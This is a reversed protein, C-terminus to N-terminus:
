FSKLNVSTGDSPPKSREGVLMPASESYTWGPGFSQARGGRFEIREFVSEVGIRSRLVVVIRPGDSCDRRFVFMNGPSRQFWILDSSGFEMPVDDVIATVADPDSAGTPVIRVTQGSDEFTFTDAVASRAAVVVGPCEGTPEIAPTHGDPSATAIFAAIGILVM